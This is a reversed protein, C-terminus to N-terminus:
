AFLGGPVFSGQSCVGCVQTCPLRRMPLRPWGHTYLTTCKFFTSTNCEKVADLSTIVANTFPLKSLSSRFNFPAVTQKSTFFGAGGGWPQSAKPKARAQTVESSQRRLTTRIYQSTHLFCTVGLLRTKAYILAHRYKQFPYLFTCILFTAPLLQQLIVAKKQSTPNISTLHPTM